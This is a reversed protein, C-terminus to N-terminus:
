LGATLILNSKNLEETKGFYRFDFEELNNGLIVKSLIDLYKNAIGSYNLMTKSLVLGSIQQNEEKNNYRQEQFSKYAENRNLNLM